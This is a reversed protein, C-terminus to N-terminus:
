FIGWKKSGDNTFIPALAPGMMVVGGHNAAPDPPTEGLTMKGTRILKLRERVGALISVHDVGVLAPQREGLRGVMFDVALQELSKVFPESFSQYVGGATLLAMSIEVSASEELDQVAEADLQGTKYPDLLEFIIERRLRRLLHPDVRAFIQLGM